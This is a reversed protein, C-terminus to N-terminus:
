SLVFNQSNAATRKRKDETKDGMVVSMNVASHQEREHEVRDLLFKAFESNTNGQFGLDIKTQNWINFTSEQMKKRENKAPRGRKAPSCSMALWLLPWDKCVFKMVFKFCAVSICLM